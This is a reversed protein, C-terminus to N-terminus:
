LVRNEQRKGVFQRLVMYSAYGVPGLMFTLILSPVTALHHIGRGAADKQIRSGVVMDFVLYHVWGALLVGKNEFLSAVGDLTGFGGEGEGMTMVIYTIYIGSLCLPLLGKHVVWETVKFRPLFVLLIWGVTALGNAVLFVKDEM